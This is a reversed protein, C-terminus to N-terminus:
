RRRLWVAAGALAAAGAAAASAMRPHRSCWQQPDHSIAKDDFVGHAGYDHGTAGDAPEWLNHPRDPAVPDATQQSSFGTRALYRDLLAPAIRQGLVTGVTSSGVWYAKRRPHDAAFVVARAALEPQYIPPVPQPHHPLRSLVWSFQPTNVAPMHVVTIAINSHDHMLETRVSETFGNIAHKSGCYASQLPISRLGLASGVQVITGRERPRMRGLATMTAYVYGLYNVETVRRFEAPSIQHFPAFVSTFAVNVWIDIPGLTNEVQEAAAEIQDPDAVDTPIALATGGANEVDKVAGDLGAQGRALLAVRAGRAAFQIATARAIGGSAGTIVVTQPPTM